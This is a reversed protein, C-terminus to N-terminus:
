MNKGTNTEYAVLIMLSPVDSLINPTTIRTREIKLVKIM